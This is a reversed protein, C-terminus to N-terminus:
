GRGDAALADCGERSRQAAGCQGPLRVWARRVPPPGSSSARFPLRPTGAAAALRNATVAGAPVSADAHRAVCGPVRGARCRMGGSLCKAVGETAAREAYGSHASLSLTDPGHSHARVLRGAPSYSRLFRLDPVRNARYRGKDPSRSPAAAPSIRAPGLDRRHNGPALYPPCHGGRNGRARTAPAGAAATRMWDPRFTCDGRPLVYVSLSASGAASSSTSRYRARMRASAM